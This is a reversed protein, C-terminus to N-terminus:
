CKMHQLILVLIKLESFSTDISANLYKKSTINKNLCPNKM